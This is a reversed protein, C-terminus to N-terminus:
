VGVDRKRFGLVALALMLLAILALVLAHVPNLGRVLLESSGYYYFPSVKQFPKLETVIRALSDLLFGAVSGAAVAGFAPGRSGLTAGVVLAIGGFVIGLLVASFSGALYRAAPIGLGFLADGALLSALLAGGLVTMVVAMAAFKEIVLRSRSIPNALLIDITNDEEEGAIARAGLAAAYITFVMPVVWGFSRSNLYGAASFLDGAADVGFVALLAPPFRDILEGIEEQQDQIFPWFADLFIVYAAIGGVWWFLSRRRDRLSKSFVSNLL